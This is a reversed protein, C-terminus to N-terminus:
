CVDLLAILGESKLRTIINGPIGGVIQNTNIRIIVMNKINLTERNYTFPNYQMIVTTRGVYNIIPLMIVCTKNM